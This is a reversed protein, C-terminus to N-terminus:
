FFKIPLNHDYEEPQSEVLQAKEKDSLVYKNLWYVFLDARFCFAKNKADWSLKNDKDYLWKDFDRIIPNINNFISNPIDVIDVDFETFAFVVKM